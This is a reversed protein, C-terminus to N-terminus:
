EGSASANNLLTGSKISRTHRIEKWTTTRRFFCILQIPIWTFFFIGFSFVGKLIRKDWKPETLAAALAVLTIGAYSFALTPLLSSLFCSLYQEAPTTFLISVSSLLSLFFSIVQIYPGLLIMCLDMQEPRNGKKLHGIIKCLYLSAIHVLGSSWRKRQTISQRFLVPQEDYTVAAPVWEIKVHALACQVSFESDESLTATNWGDMRCLVERSVMFGTGNILASLNLASRARNFFLNTVRYYLSYCGSLWNDYPNKSDRYGQAAQGGACLVNNMHQLFDPHVINDADFVCFADYQDLLTPIIQHLVEGKSKVPLLCHLIQAGSKKAVEETHDTCNNPIVYITYLDKPYNQALLSEILNAIVAEENRAAVLVAFRKQPKAVPYSKEKKLAFLALIFFYIGYLSLVGGGVTALLCFLESWEM